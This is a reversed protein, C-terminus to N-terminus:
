RAEGFAMALERLGHVDLAREFRLVAGGPLEVEIAGRSPQAPPVMPAVVVPVFRAGRSVERAEGRLRGRWWALTNENLDHRLAFERASLGSGELAEVLEKWESRRRAPRAM